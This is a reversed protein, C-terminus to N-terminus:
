RLYEFVVLGQNEAGQYSYDNCVQISRVQFYRVVFKGFRLCESGGLTGLNANVYKLTLIYLLKLAQISDNINHMRLM